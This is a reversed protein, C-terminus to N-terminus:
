GFNARYAGAAGACSAGPREPGAVRYDSIASNPADLKNGLTVLIAQLAAPTSARKFLLGDRDLDALWCHARAGDGNGAANPLTNALCHLRCRRCGWRRRCRRKGCNWWEHHPLESAM